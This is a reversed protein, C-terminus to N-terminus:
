VHLALRATVTESIKRLDFFFTDHTCSGGWIGHGMLGSETIGEQVEGSRRFMPTM